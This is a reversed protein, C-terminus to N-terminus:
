KNEEVLVKAIKLIKGNRIYGQLIINKIIYVKNEELSSINLAEHYKYNFLDGIKTTEEIQLKRLLNLSKKRMLDAIEKDEFTRLLTELPFYIDLIEFLCLSFEKLERESKFLSKKTNDNELNLNEIEKKLDDIKKQLILNSKKIEQKISSETKSLEDTTLNQEELSLDKYEFNKLEEFFNM